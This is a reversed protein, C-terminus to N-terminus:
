MPLHASCDSHSFSCDSHRAYQRCTRGGLIGFRMTGRLCPSTLARTLLCAGKYALRRVTNTAMPATATRPQRYKLSISGKEGDPCSAPRLRPVLTQEPSEISGMKGYSSVQCTHIRASKYRIKRPKRKKPTAIEASVKM